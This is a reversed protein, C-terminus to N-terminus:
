LRPYWATPVIITRGDVLDVTLSEETVAVSRARPERQESALASM